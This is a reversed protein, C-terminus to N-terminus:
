HDVAFKGYREKMAGGRKEVIRNQFGTKTTSVDNPVRPSRAIAWFSRVYSSCSAATGVQGKSFRRKSLIASSGDLSVGAPRPPNLKLYPLVQTVGWYLLCGGPLARRLRPDSARAPVSFTSSGSNCWIGLRVASSCNEFTRAKELLGRIGVKMSAFSTGSINRWASCPPGRPGTKSNM